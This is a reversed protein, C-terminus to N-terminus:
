QEQSSSGSGRAPHHQFLSGRGAPKTGRRPPLRLCRLIAAAPFAIVGPLPCIPRYSSGRRLGEIWKREIDPVLERITHGPAGLIGVHKEFAPNVELFRYDDPRGTEDLLIELVCFGEDISDCLTRYQEASARMASEAHTRETVDRVLGM